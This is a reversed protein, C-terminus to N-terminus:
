LCYIITTKGHNISRNLEFANSDCYFGRSAATFKSVRTGFNVAADRPGGAIAHSRTKKIALSDTPIKEYKSTEHPQPLLGFNGLREGRRGDSMSQRNEHSILKTLVSFSAECLGVAIGAGFTLAIM